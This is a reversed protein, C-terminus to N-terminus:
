EIFNNIRIFKLLFMPCIITSHMNNQVYVHLGQTINFITQPTNILNDYLSRFWLGQLQFTLVPIPSM